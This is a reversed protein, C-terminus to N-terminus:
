SFLVYTQMLDDHSSCSFRVPPINLPNVLISSCIIISVSVYVPPTHFHLILAEPFRTLARQEAQRLLAKNNAEANARAAAILADGERRADSVLKMAAASAEAKRAQADQEAQTIKQIADLSM